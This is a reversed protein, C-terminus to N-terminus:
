SVGEEEDGVWFLSDDFPYRFAGDHFTVHKGASVRWYYADGTYPTRLAWPRFLLAERKSPLGVGLEEAEDVGPLVIRRRFTRALQNICVSTSTDRHMLMTDRFTTQAFWHFLSWLVEFVEDVARHRGSWMTDNKILWFRLNGRENAQDQLPPIFTNTTDARYIPILCPSDTFEAPIDPYLERLENSIFNELDYPILVPLTIQKSMVHDLDRGIIQRRLRRTSWDGFGTTLQIGLKDCINRRTSYWHFTDSSEIADEFANFSLQPGWSYSSMDDYATSDYMTEADNDRELRIRGEADRRWAEAYRLLIELNGLGRRGDPLNVFHASGALDSLRIQRVPLDQTKSSAQKLKTDALAAQWMNEEIENLPLMYESVEGKMDLNKVAENPSIALSSTGFCFRQVYDCALYAIRELTKLGPEEGYPYRDLQHNHPPLFATVDQSSPDQKEDFEKFTIRKDLSRAFSPLFRLGFGRDAYKLLRKEQTARRDRLHHGWVLDMSFVSYGTELARVFRPLMLVSTGDFGLACADLDFNLLVHTPSPLLKLVIQIRRHPYPPLFTITKANKIVRHDMGAPLNQKWIAYIHEVKQNAEESSLGYLYLDLDPDKVNAADDKLPDIHLLTALASGGAIFVNAWDLEQLVDRTIRHFVERFAFDSANITISGNANRTHDLVELGGKPIAHRRVSLTKYLGQHSHDTRLESQPILEPLDKMRLLYEGDENADGRSRVFRENRLVFEDIDVDERLELSSEFLLRFARYSFKSYSALRGLFARGLSNVITKADQSPSKSHTLADTLSAVGMSFLTSAGDRREATAHHREVQYKIFSKCLSSTSIDQLQAEIDRVDHYSLDWFDLLFPPLQTNNDQHTSPEAAEPDM